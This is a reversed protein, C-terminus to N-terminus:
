RTSLRPVDDNARRLKRWWRAGFPLGAGTARDKGRRERQSRSLAIEIQVRLDDLVLSCQRLYVASSLSAKPGSEPLRAQEGDAAQLTLCVSRAPAPASKASIRKMVESFTSETLNGRPSARALEAVAESEAASPPVRYGSRAAGEPAGQRPAEAGKAVKAGLGASVSTPAEVPRSAPARDAVPVSVDAAKEVDAPVDAVASAAKIFSFEPWRNVRSKLEASESDSWRTAPAPLDEKGASRGIPLREEGAALPSVPIADPTFVDEHRRYRSARVAQDYSIERAGSSLAAASASEREKSGPRDGLNGTPTSKRSAAWSQFRGLVVNLDEGDAGVGTTTTGRQADSM